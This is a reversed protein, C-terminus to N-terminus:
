FYTSVILLGMLSGPPVGTSLALREKSNIVLLRILLNYIFNQFLIQFKEMVYYYSISCYIILLICYYVTIYLSICYYVTIYLLICYYVTIYLLICHYVTIYQSKPDTEAVVAFRNLERIYM